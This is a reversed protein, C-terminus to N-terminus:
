RAVDTTSWAPVRGTMAFGPMGARAFTVFWAGVDSASLVVAAAGASAGAESWFILETM